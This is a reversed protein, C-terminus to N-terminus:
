FCKDAENISQNQLFRRQKNKEKNVYNNSADKSSCWLLGGSTCVKKKREQFRKQFDDTLRICKRYM